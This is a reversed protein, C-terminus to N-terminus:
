ELTTIPIEHADALEPVADRAIRVPISQKAACRLIYGSMEQEHSHVVDYPGHTSLIRSLDRGYKM